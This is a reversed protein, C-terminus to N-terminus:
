NRANNQKTKNKLSNHSVKPGLRLTMESFISLRILARCQQGVFRSSLPFLSLLLCCGYHPRTLREEPVNKDCLGTRTHHVSPVDVHASWGPLSEALSLFQQNWQQRKKRGQSPKPQQIICTHICRNSSTSFIVHDCWDWFIFRFGFVCELFLSLNWRYVCLCFTIPICTFCTPTIVPLSFSCLRSTWPSICSVFLSCYRWGM